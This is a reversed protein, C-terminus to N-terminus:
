ALIGEIKEGGGKRPLPQPHPTPLQLQEWIVQEVVDWDRLAKHNWFRVLRFGQDQLWRTRVADQEHQEAHQGGDLELILRREFCVFDAIFPGLPVQRRFKHGGIQRYRIRQWVFRETDTM